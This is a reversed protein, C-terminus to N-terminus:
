SNIELPQYNPVSARWRYYVATSLMTACVLCLGSTLLMIAGPFSSITFEYLANYLVPSIIPALGEIAGMLAFVKAIDEMPMVKSLYSRILPSSLGSFVNIVAALYFHWTTTAFGRIMYSIAVTVLAVISLAMDGIPLYKQLVGVGFFSGAFSITTDVASFQTYDKLAWHLKERTYMYSLGYLGYLMFVSLSNAFTLLLLQARLYNPRRKFCDRFMEKVLLWDLVSMLGGPIAGNLSEKLHINTFAYAIVYLATVILLLYVNGVAKILYASLLSGMVSGASVAAGLITIRLSRTSKTTIDAIYCYAGTFIVSIGGTFAFPISTLVYWWPGLHMMSYIVVLMSSMTIGLLSWVILPKRGHTDSWVGLFMSLIAPSISELVTKVTQIFTAYKQVEEELKHTVNSKEPTLFIKCEDLSHNLSYVCTRYLIINSIATGSLSVALLTLFLPVEMTIAFPRGPLESIVRNSANSTSETVENENEASNETDQAM